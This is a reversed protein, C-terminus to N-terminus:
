IGGGTETKRAALVRETIAEGALSCLWRRFFIFIRQVGAKEILMKKKPLFAEGGVCVLIRLKMTGEKLERWFKKDISRYCVAETLHRMLIQASQGMDALTRAVKLLKHYSRATLSLRQYVEEMFQEQRRDPGCFERVREAPIQSNCLFTEGGTASRSCGAAVIVRERIIESTEADGKQNLEEFSFSADRCM